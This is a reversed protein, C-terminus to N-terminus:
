LLRQYAVGGGDPKGKFGLGEFVRESRLNGTKVRGIVLVGPHEERFTLLATKLLSRGLGKGRFEQSLSYDIEWVQNNKEFRVQGVSIGSETEM